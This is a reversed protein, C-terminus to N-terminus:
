NLTISIEICFTEELLLFFVVGGLGLLVHAMLVAGPSVMEGASQIFVHRLFMTVREEVGGIEDAEKGTDEDFRFETVSDMADFSGLDFKAHTTKM